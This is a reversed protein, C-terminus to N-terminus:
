VRALQWLRDAHSSPLRESGYGLRPATHTLPSQALDKRLATQHLHVLMVMVMVMFILYHIHDQVYM